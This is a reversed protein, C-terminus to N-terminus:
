DGAGGSPDFSLPLSISPLDKLTFTLLVSVDKVNDGTRSNYSDRVQLGLSAVWSSLDRHLAYEQIELTSNQFEFQERVSVGWNDNIRYYAGLRINSSNAFYPNHDLYRHSVTFQFDRAPMFRLSTNVQTFGSDLLPLQSDVGLNLWPLPTWSIRNYINSFTGPDANTGPFDPRDLNIDLFTDWEFWNFTRDDRRTQLRNRVGFRWVAWDPITDITTYQPFDISPLQTSPTRRDFQLIQEPSKGSYVYSFNTYPQVIHRLGDLGWRRSQVEEWAKSFKFSSEFGVNFVPRFVSGGTAEQYLSKANQNLDYDVANQTALFDDLVSRAGHSSYTARVGIRPVLSLWGGLTQPFIFQHFTDLRTAQYDSFPTTPDDDVTGFSRRLRAVSTESEYFLGSGFLPQRKVDLAVEPLRETADFFQNVHMRVIGTLAWNESVKTLAVVNDPQPDLRYERPYFDRLFRRDSLKNINAIGYIEETFFTKTQFTLRYRDASIDGQKQATRNIDAGSDHAYYGELRVWSRNDLGYNGKVDLGIGLGRKSRLDLHLMGHLKETLPFGYQTLLFAGWNGDYGPVFSFGENTQLSQYFYPFWFVPTNGIVLQMNSLVVHSGPYIRVTRAKFRYDPKSSDSTSVSAGQAEVANGQMSNVSDGKFFFPFSSGRLFTTRLLKSEFNYLAREGTFVYGERYLRVNGVLLIDRTEPNYQAYDAYISTPGYHIAVNNEAVAVGELFRTEGEATIEIPIDGFGGMQAHAAPLGALLLALLLLRTKM